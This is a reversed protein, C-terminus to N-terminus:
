GVSIGEWFFREDKLFIVREFYLQFLGLVIYPDPRFVLIQTSAM